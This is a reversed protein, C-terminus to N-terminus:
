VEVRGKEPQTAAQEYIVVTGKCCIKCYCVTSVLNVKLGHQVVDVLPILPQLRCWACVPLGREVIVDHRVTRTSTRFIGRTTNELAYLKVDM